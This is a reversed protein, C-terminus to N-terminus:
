KNRLTIEGKYERAMYKPLEDIDIVVLRSYTFNYILAQDNMYEAIMVISNESLEECDGQEIILLTNLPLEKLYKTPTDLSRIMEIM